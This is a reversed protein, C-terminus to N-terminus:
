WWWICHLKGDVGCVGNVAVNGDHRRLTHRCSGHSMDYVRLHGGDCGCVVCSDHGSGLSSIDLVHSGVDVTRVHRGGNLVDWLKLKEDWGGSVM